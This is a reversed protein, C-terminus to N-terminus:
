RRPPRAEAESVRIQRGDLDDGDLTRIANQAEQASNYTVFGFGKSRGSERDYIVRAEVVKGQEGFLSELALVEAEGQQESASSMTVFGFGRSRGTVKDYIVEAMEVNGASEFLQAVQASDVNFPLNGVFLKLDSPFSQPLLTTMLSSATKKSQPTTLLRSTVSSALRPPLSPSPLPSRTSISPSPLLYSPLLSPHVWCKADRLWFSWLLAAVAVPFLLCSNSVACLPTEMDLVLGSAEEERSLGDVRDAHRCRERRKEGSMWRGDGSDSERGESDKVGE